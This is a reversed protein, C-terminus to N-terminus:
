TMEKFGDCRHPLGLSMPAGDPCRSARGHKCEICVRRDDGDRDRLVLAEALDDADTASMGRRMFLAVRAVFTQIELESWAPGHCRDAADKALRHPRDPLAAKPVPALLALLGARHDRIAQRHADTLASAPAVHISDGGALTLKFGADRLRHLLDPAGM